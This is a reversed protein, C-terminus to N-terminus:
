VEGFITMQLEPPEEFNADEILCQLASDFDNYRNTAQAYADEALGRQQYRETAYHIHFGHVEEKEIPNYHPNTWGNYRRLRFQRNSLPVVVTLIVSFDLPQVNNYRAIIRFDNGSGGTVVLDEKTSNAGLLISHWDNPLVKREQILAEIEQDSYIIIM